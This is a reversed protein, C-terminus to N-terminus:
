QWRCWIEDSEGAVVGLSREVEDMANETLEIRTWDSMEQLEAQDEALEEEEIRERETQFLIARRTATHQERLLRVFREHHHRLTQVARDLEYLDREVSGAIANRRGHRDSAGHRRRGQHPLPLTANMVAPEQEDVIAIQFEPVGAARPANRWALQLQEVLGRDLIGPAEFVSRLSEHIAAGVDATLTSLSGVVDITNQITDNGETNVTVNPPMNEDQPPPPPTRNTPARALVADEGGMQRENGTVARQNPLHSTTPSRSPADM